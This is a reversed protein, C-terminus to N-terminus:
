KVQKVDLSYIVENSKISTNGFVGPYNQIKNLEAVVKDSDFSNASEIAKFLLKMAEYSVVSFNLPEKSYAKVFADHYQKQSASSSNNSFAFDLYYMGKGADGAANLVNPYPATIDSIIKGSYGAERIQKTLTGLGGGLGVTYICDLNKKKSVYETVLSKYDGDKEDYATSFNVAIGKSSCNDSIYKQMSKGYDNNCFFLGISKSKLSDSVFKVIATGATEPNAWNRFIYKSNELLKDAGSIAFMITKNKEAVPKVPMSVVSSQTYIAIPKEGGSELMQKAISVGTNGDTKSDQVDLVIKKNLLGGKANQEDIAMQIGNKTDEGLSGSNGTLGLIAGFKVTKEEKKSNDCGSFILIVAILVVLSLRLNLKKM